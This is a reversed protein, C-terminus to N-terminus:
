SADTARERCGSAGDLIEACREMESKTSALGPDRARRRALQAPTVGGFTQHCPDCGREILMAVTEANGFLAAYHLANWGSEEDIHNPDAGLALAVRVVGLNGIAAGHRLALWRELDGAGPDRLLQDISALDGASAATEIHARLDAVSGKSESEREPPTILLERGAWAVAVILALRILSQFVTATRNMTTAKGHRRAIINSAANSAFSCSSPPFVDSARCHGALDANTNRKRLNGTTPILPAFM